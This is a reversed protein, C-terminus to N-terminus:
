INYLESANERFIRRAADLATQKSYYGSEIKDALVEAVFRKSNTHADYFAEIYMTDSGMMIKNCPILSLWEALYNKLPDGILYALWCMDLYVNPYGKALIGAKGTWPYAGHFLIFKAQPYDRFLEMLQFPDGLEFPPGLTGFIGTHVQIPLDYDIAKEIIVRIIYDELRRAEAVTIEDDTKTFIKQADSKSTKGIV